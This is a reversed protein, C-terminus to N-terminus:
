VEDKRKHGGHSLLVLHRRRQTKILHCFYWRTVGRGAGGRGVGRRWAVGRGVRRREAVGREPHRHGSNKCDLFGETMNGPPVAVGLM